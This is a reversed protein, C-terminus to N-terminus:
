TALEATAFLSRESRQRRADPAAAAPGIVVSEDRRDEILLLCQEAMQLRHRVVELAADFNQERRWQQQREEVHRNLEDLSVRMAQM